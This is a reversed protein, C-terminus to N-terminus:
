QAGTLGGGGGGGPPTPPTFVNIANVQVVQTAGAAPTAGPVVSGNIQVPKGVYQSLNNGRLEIRMKTTVDIIYYNGNQVQVTGSLQVPANAGQPSFALSMGPRVVALLVGSANRVEAIGKRAAVNIRDPGALAVQWVADNGQSTIRLKDAQLAYKASGNVEGAGTELIAHDEYIRARSRPSLALDLNGLRITSQAASTEITTGSFLTSNGQVFSGYVKFDGNSRVVSISSSAAVLPVLSALLFSTIKVM